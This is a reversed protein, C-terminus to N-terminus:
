EGKNAGTGFGVMSVPTSAIVSATSLTNSWCACAFYGDSTGSGTKVPQNPYESQPPAAACLALAAGAMLFLRRM